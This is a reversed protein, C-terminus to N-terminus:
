GTAYSGNKARIKLPMVLVYANPNVVWPILLLHNLLSLDTLSWFHLCDAQAPLPALFLLCLDLDCDSSPTWLLPDLSWSVLFLYAPVVFCSVLCTSQILMLWALVFSQPGLPILLLPSREYKLKIVLHSHCEDLFYPVWISPRKDLSAQCCPFCFLILPVPQLLLPQLNAAASSPPTIEKKNTIDMNILWFYVQKRHCFPLLTEGPATFTQSNSRCCMHGNNRQLSPESHLPLHLCPSPSPPSTGGIGMGAGEGGRPGGMMINSTPDCVTHLPWFHHNCPQTVTIQAHLIFYFGAWLTPERM